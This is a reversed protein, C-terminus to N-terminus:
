LKDLRMTKVETGNTQTAKVYTWGSDTINWAGNVLSLPNPAGPFSAWTTMISADGDWTGTREISGDKYADVTKNKHYQFKYGTFSATIDTGNQTFTTVKWQGDTMAKVVMDEAIREMTKKCGTLLMAAALLAFLQKM